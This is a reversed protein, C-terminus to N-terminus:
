ILVEDKFKKVENESVTGGTKFFGPKFTKEELGPLSVM